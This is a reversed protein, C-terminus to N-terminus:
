EKEFKLSASNICYRLGTPDPGDEFLHGLHAGCRMCEVEVRNWGFALDEVYNINSSDVPAWFSPWGTGSKFKASSEFLSNGCCICSYEGVEKNKYYKGTFARETGEERTVHYEEETLLAKWEAETKVVEYKSAAEVTKGDVIKKLAEKKQACAGLSLLLSILGILYTRIM